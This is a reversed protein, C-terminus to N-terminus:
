EANPVPVNFIWIAQRPLVTESKKVPFELSTAFAVCKHTEKQSIVECLDQLCKWLSACSHQKGLLPFCLSLVPHLPFLRVRHKAILPFKVNESVLTEPDPRVVTKTFDSRALTLLL